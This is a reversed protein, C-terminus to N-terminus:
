RVLLVTCHAMLAVQHSITGLASPGEEISARHTGMVILEHGESEAYHIIARVRKGRLINIEVQVGQAELQRECETLHAEATHTLEDYFDELEDRELGDISEIVHLLTIPAQNQRALEVAAELTHPHGNSLDVPVLIRSYVDRYNLATERAAM